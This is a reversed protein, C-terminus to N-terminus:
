TDRPGKVELDLEHELPKRIKELARPVLGSARADGLEVSLTKGGASLEFRPAGPALLEATQLIAGLGRALDLDSPRLVPLFEKRWASPAPAGEHLYAAMSAVLTERPDLGWLPYNRILYASHRAHRWLDIAVGADHLWAAVTLARRESAGWGRGAALLDFLSRAFEALKEGHPLSFSMGEALAVASRHALEEAPAPLAAGVVELAIGERIGTGSVTLERAGASRLLEQFVVIGAVILDARDSGVPVVTRRKSAPVDAVLEFLAELDRDRLAYGHVRAIPFERLEIAARALARVTGGVGVVAYQSGGFAELAATLTSRVSSRLEEIERPKPPDHELFRQTLRLAGLPLSVSNQERGARVEVLQLSGGGLDCVLATDLEWASAVGIYAYHAEELGSIVRLSIGTRKQVESLFVSSNPADRVASTTVALTKPAGVDKLTQAFRGLAEVGRAIAEPALSGDPLTGLGLRPVEKREEVPRLAGSSAALFIELRATNSGVDIVGIPGALPVSRGNMRDSTGAVPRQV